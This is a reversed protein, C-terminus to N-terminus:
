KARAIAVKAGRHIATFHGVEPTTFGRQTSFELFPHYPALSLHCLLSYFLFLILIQPYIVAEFLGCTLLPDDCANSDLRGISTFSELM